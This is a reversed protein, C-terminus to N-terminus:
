RPSSHDLFLFTLSFALLLSATDPALPLPAPLPGPLGSPPSTAPRDHQAEYAVPLVQVKGELLLPSM